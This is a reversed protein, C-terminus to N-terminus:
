AQKSPFLIPHTLNYLSFIIQFCTDYHKPRRLLHRRQHRQAPPQHLRADVTLRQQRLFHCLRAHAAQRQQRHFRCPTGARLRFLPYQKQRVIGLNIGSQGCSYRCIGIDRLRIGHRSGRLHGGTALGRHQYVKVRAVPVRIEAIGAISQLLRFVQLRLIQLPDIPAAM